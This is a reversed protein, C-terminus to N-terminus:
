SNHATEIRALYPQAAKDLAAASVEDMLYGYRYMSFVPSKVQAHFNAEETIVSFTYEYHSYIDRVSESGMGYREKVAIGELLGIFATLEEPDDLLYVEGYRNGFQVGQIEGILLIGFPKDGPAFVIDAFGTMLANNAFRGMADESRSDSRYSVGDISMYGAFSSVIHEKGDKMYLTYSVSQGVMSESSLKGQEYVKVGQLIDVIEVIADRDGVVKSGGPRLLIDVSAVEDAALSAFPTKGGIGLATCSALLLAAAVALGLVALLLCKQKFSGGRKGPVRSEQTMGKEM